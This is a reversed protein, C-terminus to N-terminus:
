YVILQSYSYPINGVRYLDQIMCHTDESELLNDTTYRIKSSNWEMGNLRLNLKSALLADVIDFAKQM